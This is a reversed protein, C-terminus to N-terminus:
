KNRDEKIQKKKFTLIAALASLGLAITYFIYNIYDGTKTTTNTSTDVDSSEDTSTNETDDSTSGDNPTTEEIASDTTEDDPTTEEGESPNTPPTQGNGPGGPGGMGPNGVTIGEETIKSISSEIIVSGIETGDSYLGEDYIGDTSTGTSSGGYYATYTEGSIINPSSVIVSGYKKSPSFTLLDKGDKSEIHILTGANQSSLAISIVNQTSSESPTEVMGLSGYAILTGGTIDMTIDYDLSANNDSTPGNVITTGGTIYISGNADLGDGEANVVIYGGNISLVATSNSTHVENSTNTNSTSSVTEDETTETTKVSANMGDDSSTVYITGNNITIYTAELGEYSKTITTSGSNIELTGDAHLADDGTEITIKGGNITVNGNSHVADDASNLNFTGGNIFIATEAKLAKSSVSTTEETSTDTSTDSTNGDTNTNNNPPATPTQGNNTTPTSGDGPNFNGDPPNVSGDEPNFGEPPTMDVGGEPPTPMGDEVHDEGYESGNGSLISIDGGNITLTTEAQIGDTQSNINITGGDIRVYGKSSKTNTSKIGDAGSTININGDTITVSDKGKIGDDVSNITITGGEISLNDKSRIGTNYNGTVDLIGSGNIVLDSKSFIAADPEDTTEDEYVYSSADSITNTTNSALTLVTNGKIIYIASSTSSSISVGNLLIRVSDSDESNVVVQGDTLTGCINYTGASTITVINNNVTAGDGEVSIEDGLTINTNTDEVTLISECEIATYTATNANAIIPTSTILSSTLAVATLITILKNKM